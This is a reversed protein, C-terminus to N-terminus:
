RRTWGNLTQGSRTPMQKFMTTNEIMFYDGSVGKILEITLKDTQTVSTDRYFIAEVPNVLSKPYYAYVAHGRANGESATNKEAASANNGYIAGGSINLEGGVYVYIGGGQPSSNSRITGGTMTFYGGNIYVGGGYDNGPQAHNGSIVGGTMIFSTVSGGTGRIYVGCNRNNTITGGSMIFQGGYEVNVGGRNGGSTVTGNRLEIKTQPGRDYRRIEECSSVYLSPLTIDGDIIVHQSHSVSIGAGTLRGNGTIVISVPNLAYVNDGRNTYAVIPAFQEVGISVHLPIVFDGNIVMVFAKYNTKNASKIQLLANEWDDTNGVIAAYIQNQPVGPFYHVYPAVATQTALPQVTTTSGTQGPDTRRQAFVTYACYLLLAGLFVIRFCRKNM